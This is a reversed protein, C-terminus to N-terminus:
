ASGCMKVCVCSYSNTITFVSCMPNSKSATLATAGFRGCPSDFHAFRITTFMSRLYGITNRITLSGVEIVAWLLSVDADNATREYRWGVGFVRRGGGPINRNRRRGVVDKPWTTIYTLRQDIQFVILGACVSREIPSGKTTHTHRHHFSEIYISQIYEYMSKSDFWVSRGIYM